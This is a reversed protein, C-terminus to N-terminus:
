WWIQNDGELTFIREEEGDSGVPKLWYLGNRPVNDFVVPKETATASGQSQWGEKWVFLEYDTGVKLFTGAVGDTAGERKRRTTSSLQVSAVSGTDSRLVTLTCDPNLVFPLGAPIIEENLYLAPLYAIDTGMDRFTVQRGVIKGWQIAKWEGSNFVCLYALNVSDRDTRELAVTVDCVDVYDATVDIYNERGLWPPVKAQKHEIFALSQHQRSFTKRYVKALKNSLHYAGPNAEAGMFPVVNGSSVLIANWAHNNGTNAWYPTYDSTVALGNARMAYITLNTMDECRGLGNAKMEALGQDTPHYYFRENFTFWTKIDDNILAAAEMPDTSDTMRRGIDAYKEFFEARWPELPENSGRYPLVYECFDDFSLGSSWPRERWARFALDIQEILFDSTVTRVDLLTDDHEFDLLGHQEELAAFAERLREYDEYDLVEFPITTGTTDRLAYTIYSHDAMNGILYEAAIYKLTDPDNRYHDLVTVLEDRNADAADLTAIVDDSYNPGSTRGSEAFMFAVLLLGLMAIQLRNMIAFEKGIVQAL